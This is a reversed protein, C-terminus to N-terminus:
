ESANISITLEKLEEKRKEIKKKGYKHNVNNTMQNFLPTFIFCTKQIKESLLIIFTTAFSM